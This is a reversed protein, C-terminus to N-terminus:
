KKVKEAHEIRITTGVRIGFHEDLYVEEPLFGYTKYILGLDFSIASLRSNKKSNFYYRFDSDIAGGSFSVATNFDLNLPQQWFHGSISMSFKDIPQFDILSIGFGNFWNNKNQFQRAYFAFNLSKHKIWINEDIFDGFPSMTFGMGANFKTNESLKFNSKGIMLPNLLNLLSRYGIRKIFRVEEDSLDKYKTYRYFDMGPRYLHRTAGYIDHGVIDRELENTEENLDIEFKFLGPIYYQLIALKRFYYEINYNKFDEQEFAGMSEERKTLMYDSESGATHLRIYNPLDNDRLSMLTEDTVGKVYAAGHKNFYPQSISGINNATLISRHGEEHTLPVTFIVLTLQILESSLHNISTQSLGNFIMRYVSLYNQNFQRMTSLQAPSDMLIFNYDRYKKTSDTQAYSNIALILLVCIIFVNRM